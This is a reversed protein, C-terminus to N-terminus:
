AIRTRLEYKLAEYAATKVADSFVTVSGENSVVTGEYGIATIAETMEGLDHRGYYVIEEAAESVFQDTYEETMGREEAVEVNNQVAQEIAQPLEGM